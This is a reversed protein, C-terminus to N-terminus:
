PVTVGAFTDYSAQLTPVRRSVDRLREGAVQGVGKASEPCLICAVMVVLWRRRM